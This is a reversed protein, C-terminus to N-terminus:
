GGTLGELPLRTTFKIQEIAFTSSVDKLTVSSILKKYFRDYSEIDPVVVRLLYDVQGGMRYFEVVEPFDEVAAHFKDLWDQSHEPTTVAVFVTVEAGVKKPDLLTVRGLIVGDKEMQAVRARCDEASLGTQAALDDLSIAADSQLIDLIRADNQDM